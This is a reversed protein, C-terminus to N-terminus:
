WMWTLGTVPPLQVVAPPWRIGKLPGGSLKVHGPTGLLTETQWTPSREPLCPLIVASFSSFPLNMAIYLSSYTEAMSPEAAKKPLLLTTTCAAFPVRILQAFKTIISPGGLSGVVVVFMGAGGVPLGDAVTVGLPADPVAEGVLGDGDGM